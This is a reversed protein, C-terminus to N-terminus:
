DMIIYINNNINSIPAAPPAPASAQRKRTTVKGAPAPPPPAQLGPPPGAVSFDIEPFPNKPKRAM